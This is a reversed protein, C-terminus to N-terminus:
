GWASAQRTQTAWAPCLPPWKPSTEECLGSDDDRSWGLHWGPFSSPRPSLPDLSTSDEHQTCGQIVHMHNLSIDLWIRRCDTPWYARDGGATSSWCCCSQAPRGALPKSIRRQGCLQRLSISLNNRSLLLVGSAVSDKASIERTVVSIGQKEAFQM